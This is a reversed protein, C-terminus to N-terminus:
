PCEKRSSHRSSRVIQDHDRFQGIVQRRPREITEAGAYRACERWATPQYQKMVMQRESIRDLMRVANMVPHQSSPACGEAGRVMDSGPSPLGIPKIAHGAPDKSGADSPWKSPYEAVRFCPLAGGDCM